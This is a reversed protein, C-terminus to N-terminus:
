AHAASQHRQMSSEVWGYGAPVGILAGASWAMPTMMMWGPADGSAISGIVNGSGPVVLVVIPAVLGALSVGLIAPVVSVVRAGPDRKVNKQDSHHLMLGCVLGALLGGVFGGWVSQGTLDSTVQLWSAGLAAIVSVGLVAAMMTPEARLTSILSGDFRLVDSRVDGKKAAKTMMWLMFAVLGFVLGGEIALRVLSGVGPDSRLAEGVRGGGWAGWALVFGANLVGERLSLVKTAVIGILQAMFGIALVVFVGRVISSSLLMTAHGSGDVSRMSNALMGAIPGLVLIAAGRLVWIWIAHRMVGDDAGGDGFAFREGVRAGIQPLM